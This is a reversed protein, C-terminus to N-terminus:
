EEIEKFSIATAEEKYPLDILDGEFLQRARSTLRAYLEEPIVDKVAQSIAWLQKEMVKIQESFESSEIDKKIKIAELADKMHVRFNSDGAQETAQRVLIDLLSKDDIFATEVNEMLIGQQKARNELIRRIAKERIRLHSNVHRDINKRLTDLNTSLKPDIGMIEEAISTAGYGAAALREIRDRVPSQCIKCRPERVPLTDKIAALDASPDVSKKPRGRKAPQNTM